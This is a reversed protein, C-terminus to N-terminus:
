TQTICRRCVQFSTATSFLSCSAHRKLLHSLAHRRLAPSVMDRLNRNGCFRCIFNNPTGELPFLPVTQGAAITESSTPLSNNQQCFWCEAKVARPMFLGFPMAAGCPPTKRLENLVKNIELQRLSNCITNAIYRANLCNLCSFFRFHLALCAALSRSRAKM